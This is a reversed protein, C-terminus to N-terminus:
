AIAAGGESRGKGSRTQDTIRRRAALSRQAEAFVDSEIIAQHARPQVIGDWVLTGCYIPNTLVNLVTAKEWARGKKTSIGSRNLGEAIDM